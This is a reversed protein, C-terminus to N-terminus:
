VSSPYVAHMHDGVTRVGDPSERVWFGETNGLFLESTTPHFKLCWSGTDPLNGTIDEWGTTPDGTVGASANAIMASKTTWWVQSSGPHVVSFAIWTETGISTVALDFVEAYDFDVLLENMAGSIDYTNTGDFM